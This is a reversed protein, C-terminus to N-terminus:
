GQSGIYMSVLSIGNFVSHFGISAMLHREKRKLYSSIIGFVFMTSIIPINSAGQELSFHLLAFLFATCGVSFFPHVIAGLFADFSGRFLLEEIIPIVVVVSIASIYFLWPTDFSSEILSFAVQPVWPLRSIYFVFSSVAAYILMLFPYALCAAGGGKLFKGINLFSGSGYVRLRIGEPVIRFGLWFLIATLVATACRFLLSSFSIYPFEPRWISFLWYALFPTILFVIASGCAVLFLGLLTKFHTHTFEDEDGERRLFKEPDKKLLYASVCAWAIIILPYFSELSQSAFIYSSGVM